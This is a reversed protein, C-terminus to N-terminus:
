APCILLFPCGACTHPDPRAAYSGGEMGELAASLAGRLREEQRRSLAIRREEGGASQQVAETPSGAASRQEAALAYLLARVDTRDAGGGLHQRVLREPAAQRVATSDERPGAGPEVGSAHASRGAMPAPREVRDLALAIDRGGARVTVPADMEVALAAAPSPPVDAASAALARWEREVLRQGHRRLAQELLEDRALPEDGAAARWQREFLDYCETLSPMRQGDDALTGDLRDTRDALNAVDAGDMRTRLESICAHVGRRLATLGSEQGHLGYVYRYAYQRPCRLYTELEGVQMPRSAVRPRESPEATPPMTEEAPAAPWRVEARHARVQARIPALFPSPAYRLKGYREAASLVLADRARTLAVYFLCAEEVFQGEDSREADDDLHLGAPLPAADWRTRMPFRRDAMGPVFVVPFELGKSAHVTLVSVGPSAADLRGDGSSEGQRLVVLVRLYELFGAWDAGRPRPSDAADGARQDARQDDFTRALALLRGVHGAHERAGEDGREVGALLEHGLTTLSFLYRGLGTAVNPATRLKGLM